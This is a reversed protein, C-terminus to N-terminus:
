DEVRFGTKRYEFGNRYPNELKSFDKDIVNDQYPRDNSVQDEAMNNLEFLSLKSYETLSSVIECIGELNKQHVKMEKTFLRNRETNLGIKHGFAELRSDTKM